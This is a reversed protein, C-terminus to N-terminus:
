NFLKDLAPVSVNDVDYIYAEAFLLYKNPNLADVNEDILKGIQTPSAYLSIKLVCEDSPNIEIIVHTFTM